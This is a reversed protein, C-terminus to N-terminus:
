LKAESAGTLMDNNGVLMAQASEHEEMKNTVYPWHKKKLSQNLNQVYM